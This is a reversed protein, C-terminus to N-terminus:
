IGEQARKPMQIKKGKLLFSLQFTKIEGRIRMSIRDKAPDVLEIVAQGMKKLSVERGQSLEEVSLVFRMGPDPTARKSIGGKYRPQGKKTQGGRNLGQEIQRRLTM